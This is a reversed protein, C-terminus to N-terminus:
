YWKAEGFILEKPAILDLEVNQTKAYEEYYKYNATIHKIEDTTFGSCFLLASHKGQYASTQMVKFMKNWLEPKVQRERYTKAIIRLQEGSTLM